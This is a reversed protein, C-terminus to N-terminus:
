VEFYENVKNIMEMSIVLLHNYDSSTAEKIYADRAKQNFDQLHIEDVQGDYDPLKCDKEAAVMAKKVYAMVEFANGDVGVLTFRKMSNIYSFLSFAKLNKV